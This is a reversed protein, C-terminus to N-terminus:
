PHQPHQGIRQGHRRVRVHPGPDFREGRGDDGLSEGALPTGTAATVAATRSHVGLRAFTNELHKRVTHPSVHLRRAIARNTLGAGVLALVERERATLRPAPPGALRRVAADLHPRLLRLVLHDREDFDPGRDRDFLLVHTQGAPHSLKVSIEHELGSPRFYEQYLGTRHWERPTLLDGISVVKLEDGPGHCLPHEHYHPWFAEDLAPDADGADTPYTLGALVCQGTLDLRSWSVVECRVQAALLELLDPVGSLGRGRACEDAAGLLRRLATEDLDVTV